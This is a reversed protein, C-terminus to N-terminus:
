SIRETADDVEALIGQRGTDLDVSVCGLLATMVVKVTSMVLITENFDFSILTYIKERFSEAVPSLDSHYSLGGVGLLAVSRQRLTGGM